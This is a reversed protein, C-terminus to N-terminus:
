FDGLNRRALALLEARSEANTKMVGRLDSTVTSSGVAKVGRISMCSHMADVWVGIGIPSLLKQVADAIQMTMREQVQLRAAYYEVIRALKSIGIIKGHEIDPIYAVTAVGMFPLVHHECLSTFKINRVAIMQDHKLEFSTHISSLFEDEPVRQGWTLEHLAKVVRKPTDKLGDRQSDEGLYSLIGRVGARVETLTQEDFADKITNSDSSM